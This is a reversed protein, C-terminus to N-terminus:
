KPLPCQKYKSRLEKLANSRSSVPITPDKDFAGALFNKTDESTLEGTKKLQCISTGAGIYFGYWFIEDESAHASIPACAVSSIMVVIVLQLRKTM